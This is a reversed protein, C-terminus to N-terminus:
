PSKLSHRLSALTVTRKSSRWSALLQLIQALIKLLLFAPKTECLDLSGTWVNLNLAASEKREGALFLMDEMRNTADQIAKIAACHSM